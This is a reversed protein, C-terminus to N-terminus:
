QSNTSYVTCRIIKLLCPVSGGGLSSASLELGRAKLEDSGSELCKSHRSCTASAEADVAPVDVAPVAVWYLSRFVMRENSGISVGRSM